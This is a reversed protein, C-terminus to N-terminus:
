FKWRAGIVAVNFEEVAVAVGTLEYSRYGAYLETNYRDWKQFVGFNLKGYFEFSPPAAGDALALGPVALLTIVTAAGLGPLRLNSKGRKLHWRRHM